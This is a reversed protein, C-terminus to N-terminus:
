AKQPVPIRVVFRAGGGVRNEAVIVGGHERVIKRANSLGLGSGTKKTTFFPDFLHPLADDAIGAGSDEVVFEVSGGDTVERVFFSVRGGPAAAQIGNLLINLLSQELQHRDGPFDPIRDSIRVAVAVEGDVAAAQAMSLACEALDTARVTESTLVLPRSYTLFETLLRNLKGVEYHLTEVKSRHADVGLDALEEDMLTVLLKISNLPNRIEHAITAAMEKLRADREQVQGAMANLSRALSALESPTPVPVRADYAGEGIKTATAAMARIPRTLRRALLLSLLVAFVSGAAAIGVLRANMQEIVEIERTGADVGVIAAVHGQDDVVPAYASVYLAGDDGRYSGTAGASGRKLSDIFAPDLRDLAYAAGISVDARTDLLSAQDPAFVYIRRAGTAERIEGLKEKLRLVMRSQDDGPKILVLREAPANKGAIRAIDQLKRGVEGELNKKATQVFFVGFTAAVVGIILLYSATQIAFISLGKKQSQPSM